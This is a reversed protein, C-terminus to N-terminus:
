FDLEDKYSYDDLSLKFCRSCTVLSRDDTFKLILRDTSVMGCLSSDDNFQVQHSKMLHVSRTVRDIPIYDSM